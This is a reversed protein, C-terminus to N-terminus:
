PRMPGEGVIILKASPIAQVVEKFALIIVSLNKTIVLRGIFLFIDQYEPITSVKDHAVLEIGNYVTSIRSKRNITLLDHKTANSVVHVMDVPIKLVLKEFLPGIFSTSSRVINQSSWLKWHGLTVHHVTSVVPIRFLQGLIYGVIVPSYTNAHILEIKNKRIVHYGEKTANVIYGLQQSYSPVIGPKDTITPQVVHVKIGSKLLQSINLEQDDSSSLGLSKFRYCIIDVEHGKKIMGMALKFFLAEGGGFSPSILQLLYLIRM